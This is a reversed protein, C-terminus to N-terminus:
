KGTKANQQEIKAADDRPSGPQLPDIKMESTVKTVGQTDLVIAIARGIQEPSSAAGHMTVEGSTVKLHTTVRVTESDALLRNNILTALAEDDMKGTPEDAGLSKSRVIAAGSDLDAKIDGPALKWETMRGEVVSSSPAIAAGGSQAAGGGILATPSADSPTHPYTEKNGYDQPGAPTNSPTPTEHGDRSSADKKPDAPQSTGATPPTAHDTKGDVAFATHGIM